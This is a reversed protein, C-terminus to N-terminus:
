LANWVRRMRLTNMGVVCDDNRSLSEIGVLNASVDVSHLGGADQDVAWRLEDEVVKDRFIHWHCHAATDADWQPIAVGSARDEVEM